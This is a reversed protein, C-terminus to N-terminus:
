KHLECTNGDHIIVGDSLIDMLTKYRLESQRLKERKVYITIDKIQFITIKEDDIFDKLIVFKYKRNNM